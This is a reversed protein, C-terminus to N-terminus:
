RLGPGARVPGRAHQRVLSSFGRAGDPTTFFKAKIRSGSVYMSAGATGGPEGRDGKPGAAGVPGIAGAPGVAGTAGTDGKAGVAGAPGAIGVPGALGAAGSSRGAGDPRYTRRDGIRVSRDPRRPRDGGHGGYSWCCGHPRGPRGPRRPRRRGHCRHRRPRGQARTYRRCCRRFVSLCQRQKRM